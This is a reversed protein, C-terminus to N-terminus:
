KQPKAELKIADYMIGGIINPKLTMSLSLENTGKKLWSAPFKINKQQYYAGLIASRYVSHDNGFAISSIPNENLTIKLNPWRAEGAIGLTLTCSDSYTKNVDFVIKWTGTKTQAYYWDNAEKSKGVTFTLNEPVQKFVDYARKHDSLKFGKTTRDATGIQFIKEGNDKPKWNLDNLATTKTPLIDIDNKVYEETVNDTYAYLTYKGARINPISFSGDANAHTSYIYGLEQAQWDINPKALIVHANATSINKILLKGTLTGRELPYDSHNMWSYPWRTIEVAAKKKADSWIDEINKGSNVYLFFPGGMKKWEGRVPGDTKREALLFHDCNFMMIMFPTSHVTNYQKTPGGNLYEHSAQIVFIGLGSKQGAMGHVNRGDIYDCYDYKTYITSDPLKYTWDQIEHVFDAMKPMPGQINDRVLHYDFLDESSRLGWRIQGFGSDPSGDHHYQELFCYIGSENKMLAYHLEFFYGGKAEHLFQIEILDPTNRVIKFESPSMSFGPGMLYATKNGSKAKNSVGTLLEKGDKIISIMSGNNKTFSFSIKPNSLTINNGLDTLKLDQSKVFGIFLVLILLLTAPKKTM